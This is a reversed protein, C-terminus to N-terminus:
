EHGAIMNIYKLSKQRSEDWSFRSAWIISSKVLKSYKKKNGLIGNIERALEEPKRREVIKGSVGDKVSDVLGASGYAVVPTGVCNAETNVLGWGEHVSANILIHSKALLEFKKAESVFGWFIIKSALSRAISKIEDEYKRTEGRGIVWFRYNGMKNLINFCSIADEIGKDKSIIGLYTVTNIREKKYNNGAKPFNIGHYIITIKEKEIGMKELDKETSESATMFRVNKYFRFFCPEFFYGILGVILNFPQPLSNLFWVRGAVEQILAVKPKKVYFPTFFPLGHFQDIVLDVSSKNKLYYFFAALQVGLFQSGGREIEVGEINEKKLSGRFRSSFWTVKNGASIWGKTHELVSQEAGGALPHRPDRWGLILIRM